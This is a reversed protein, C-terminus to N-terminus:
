NRKKTLKESTDTEKTDNNDISPETTNHDQSSTQQKDGKFTIYFDNFYRTINGGFILFVPILVIVLLALIISYQTLSSGEVRKKYM